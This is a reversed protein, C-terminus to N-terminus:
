NTKLFKDGLDLEIYQVISSFNKFNIANGFITEMGSDNYGNWGFFLQDNKEGKGLAFNVVSSYGISKLYKSDFGPSICLEIKPFGADLLNKSTLSQATPYLFYKKINVYTQWVM